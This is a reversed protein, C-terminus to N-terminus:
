LIVDPAYLRKCQQQRERVILSISSIYYTLYNTLTSLRVYMYVSWLTTTYTYQYYTSHSYLLDYNSLIYVINNYSYTHQVNLLLLVLIFFFDQMNYYLLHFEGRPTM